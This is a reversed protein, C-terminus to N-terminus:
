QEVDYTSLILPAAESTVLRAMKFTTLLKANSPAGQLLNNVIHQNVAGLVDPGNPLVHTDRRTNKNIRM